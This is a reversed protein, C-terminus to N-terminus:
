IIESEPYSFLYQQIVSIVHAPQSILAALVGAIVSATYTKLLGDPLTNRTLRNILYQEVYPTSCLPGAIFITERLGTAFISKILGHFGGQIIRQYSANNNAINVVFRENLIAIPMSAMGGALANLAM